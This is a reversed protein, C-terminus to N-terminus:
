MKLLGSFCASKCDPLQAPSRCFLVFISPGQSWAYNAFRPTEPLVADRPESPRKSRMTDDDHSHFARLIGCPVPASCQLLQLLKAEAGCGCLESGMNAHTCHCGASTLRFFFFPDSPGLSLPRPPTKLSGFKYAVRVEYQVTPVQVLTCGLSVLVLM